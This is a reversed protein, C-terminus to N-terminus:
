DIEMGKKATNDEVMESISKNYENELLRVIAFDIEKIILKM